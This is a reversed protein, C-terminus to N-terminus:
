ASAASSAAPTPATATRVPWAARPTSRSSTRSYDTRALHQTALVQAAQQACLFYGKYNVTTVFDFDKEPLTKVSGAKLVGANSIFVDLGGFRRVVQHIVEAVSADDTVNIPLGM